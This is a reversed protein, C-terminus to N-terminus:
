ADPACDAPTTEEREERILQTSSSAPKAHKWEIPTPMAPKAAFATLPQSGM